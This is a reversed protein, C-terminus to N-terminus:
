LSENIIVHQILPPTVGKWVQTSSLLSAERALEHAARNGDRKLQQFLCWSFSLKASRIDQLILGVESSDQSMNLSQILSLSDSEFIAHSLKMKAALLVGQHLAFAETTEATYVALLTKCMTAVPNGFCDRIVVGISSKKGDDFTVGDVNIKFFGLHPAIWRAM